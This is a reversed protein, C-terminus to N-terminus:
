TPAVWHTGGRLFGSRRIHGLAPQGFRPQLVDGVAEREAAADGVEDHRNSKEVTRAHAIQEAQQRPLPGPRRHDHRM